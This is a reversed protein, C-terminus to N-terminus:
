AVVSRGTKQNVIGFKTGLRKDEYINESPFFDPGTYCELTRYSRLFIKHHDINLLL